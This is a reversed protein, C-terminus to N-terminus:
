VVNTIKVHPPFYLHGEIQLLTIDWYASEGGGGVCVGLDFEVSYVLGVM